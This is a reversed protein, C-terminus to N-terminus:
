LYFLLGQTADARVAGSRQMSAVAILLYGAHAISSYALMRKVSRQPIALLNGVLMTLGALWVVLRSWDLVVQDGAPGFGSVLIRVLVAFAASKVGAAMFGTVPAPAGDYVDPVWMHFPVAAVKFAFGAALLAASAYVLTTASGSRVTAALDALRTSGSAGFAFAAGYLFIASAFSGLIFYKFAAEAPRKGRRLYACLAYVALSMVELSIFIVILVTAQALLCMGAASFLALAYFEGRTARLSELYSFAVICSFFLAACVVAAVVRAFGDSVAAGSFLSVAPDGLRSLAAWLAAAAFAAAVWAQYRRDTPAPVAQPKADSGPPLQRQAEEAPGPAPGLVAPKVNRLFVESTLLLLAGASLILAPLVGYLDNPDYNM